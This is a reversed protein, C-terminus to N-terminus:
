VSERVGGGCPYRLQAMVGRLGLRSRWWRIAGWLQLIEAGAALGSERSAHPQGLRQERVVRKMDETLMAM